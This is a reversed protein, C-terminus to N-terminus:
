MPTPVTTEPASAVTVSAVSRTVGLSTTATVSAPTSPDTSGSMSRLSERGLRAMNAPSAMKKENATSNLTSLRYEIASISM